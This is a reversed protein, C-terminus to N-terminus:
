VGAPFCGSTVIQFFCVDSMGVLLSSFFDSTYMQEAKM